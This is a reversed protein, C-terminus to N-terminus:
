FKNSNFFDQHKTQRGTTTSCLAKTPHAALLRPDCNLSAQQPTLQNHNNTIPEHIAV